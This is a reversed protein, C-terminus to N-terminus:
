TVNSAEILEYTYVYKGIKDMTEDRHENTLLNGYEDYTNVVTESLTDDSSYTTMTVILGTEDYSYQTYSTLWDHENYSSVKDLKSNLYSYETYTPLKSNWQVEERLLNSDEDYTMDIRCTISPDEDTESYRVLIHMTRNGHKDYTYDSVEQCFGDVYVEDRLIRHTDDLTLTHEEVTQTGDPNEITSQIINGYEDYEPYESRHLEGNWYSDWQCIRGSEDYFYDCRISSQPNGAISSESTYSKLRYPNKPEDAKQSCGLFSLCLVASLILAFQKKM